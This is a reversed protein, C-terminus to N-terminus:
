YRINAVLGAPNKSSVSLAKGNTKQDIKQSVKGKSM